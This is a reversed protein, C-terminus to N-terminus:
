CDFNKAWQNAKDIGSMTHASAFPLTYCHLTNSYSVVITRFKGQKSLSDSITQVM